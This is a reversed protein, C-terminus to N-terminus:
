RLSNRQQIWRALKEKEQDNAEQNFRDLIPRASIEDDLEILFKVLKEMTPTYKPYRNLNDRLIQVAERKEGLVYAVISLNDLTRPIRAVLSRDQMLLEQYHQRLAQRDGNKGYLIFANEYASFSDAPESQKAKQLYHEALQFEEAQILTFTLANNLAADERGTEQYYKEILARTNETKGVKFTLSIERVLWHIMPHAVVAEISDKSVEGSKTFADLQDLKDQWQLNLYVVSALLCTAAGVCLRQALPSMRINRSANGDELRLFVGLLTGAIMLPGILQLPFSFLSNMALGALALLLVFKQLNQPNERSLLLRIGLHALLLSTIAILVAFPLGLEATHQLYDNHAHLTRFNEATAYPIHAYHFTGLGSGLWPDSRIMELTLRWQLLRDNEGDSIITQTQVLTKSVREEVINWPARFGHRDVSLLVVLLVFASTLAKHNLPRRTFLRRVGCGYLFYALLTTQGLVIIWAVRTFSDHLFGLCLSIGLLYYFQRLISEQRVVLLHVGVIWGIVVIHTAMNKNGFTAAPPFSQQFISLEFLYQLLGIISVLLACLFVCDLIFNLGDNRTTQYTLFALCLASTWMIVQVLSYGPYESWFLSLWGWLFALLLVIALPNLSAKVTNRGILVLFVVLLFLSLPTVFAAKTFMHMALNTGQLPSILVVLVLCIGVLIPLSRVM